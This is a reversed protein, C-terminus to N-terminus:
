GREFVEWNAPVICTPHIAHGSFTRESGHVAPNDALEAEETLSHFRKRRIGNRSPDGVRGRQAALKLFTELPPKQRM